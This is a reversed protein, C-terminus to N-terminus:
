QHVILLPLQSNKEGLYNCKARNVTVVSFLWVTALLDKDVFCSLGEGAATINNTPYSDCMLEMCFISFYLQIM